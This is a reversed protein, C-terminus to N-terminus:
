QGKAGQEIKRKRELLVIAAADEAARGSMRDILMSRVRGNEGQTLVTAVQEMEWRCAAAVVRGITMADSIGDDLSRAKAIRCEIYARKASETEANTAPAERALAGGFCFASVAFAIGAGVRFYRDIGM